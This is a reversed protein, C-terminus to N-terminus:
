FGGKTPSTKLLNNLYCKEFYLRRRFTTAKIQGRCVATRLAGVSMRLIFAAEDCRVWKLNEFLMSSQNEIEQNKSYLKTHIKYNAKEIM